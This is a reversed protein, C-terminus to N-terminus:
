VDRGGRWQPADRKIELKNGPFVEKKVPDLSRSGLVAKEEKTEHLVTFTAQNVLPFHLPFVHPSTM